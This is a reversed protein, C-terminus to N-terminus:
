LDYIMEKARAKCDEVFANYIAYEEPKEDRQRLMALEESVNYRERILANVVDGYAKALTNNKEALALQEKTYM